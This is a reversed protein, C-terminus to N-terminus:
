AKGRILELGQTLLGLQAIGVWIFLATVLWLVTNLWRLSLQELNDVGEMVDDMIGKYQDIVPQIQDLSKVLGDMSEGMTRVSEQLSALNDTATELNSQVKTLETPLPELNDSMQAIALSLPMEPAYKAGILPISSIILLTDDILKASAQVADLSTQTDGIIKVMDEGVLKGVSDVAPTADNITGATSEAITQVSELSIAVQDITGSISTLLDDTATLSRSVLDFMFGVQRTIEPKARWTLVVGGISLLLGVVSGLILVIGLVFGPLRKM